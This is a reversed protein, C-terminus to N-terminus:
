QDHLPFQAPTPPYTANQLLEVCEEMEWPDKVASM